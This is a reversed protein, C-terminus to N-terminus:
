AGNARSKYKPKQKVILDGSYDNIVDLAMELSVHTPKIIQAKIKSNKKIKSVFLESADIQFYDIIKNLNRASPLTAGLEWHTINSPNVELIRALKHASLNANQRIRKINKACLASINTPM